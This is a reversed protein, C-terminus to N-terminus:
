EAVAQRALELAGAKSKAGAIFRGTHCFVADQVGTLGALEADRKGAWAGPLPKRQQFGGLATPVAQLRWEGGVDQFVLYRTGGHRPDTVIHEMVPAYRDLILVPGGPAPTLLIAAMRATGEDIVANLVPAVWQVARSFAADHDPDMETWSPNFGSVSHSLTMVGAELAAAEGNDIADIGAILRSDVHEHIEQALGLDEKLAAWVLGASSFRRGNPRLPSGKFHHDYAMLEPRFEGGVDALLATPDKKAAALAAADRTRIIKCEPFCRRVSAAAIVDDAHFVGGHTYFKEIREIREIMM